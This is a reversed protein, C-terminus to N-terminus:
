VEFHQSSMEQAELRKREISAERRVADSAPGDLQKRNLFSERRVASQPSGPTTAASARKFNSREKRSPTRESDSPAGAFATFRRSWVPRASTSVLDVADEMAGTVSSLALNIRPGHEQSHEWKTIRAIIYTIVANTHHKGMQPQWQIAILNPLVGHLVSQLTPLDFETDELLRELTELEEPYNLRMMPELNALFSAAAAYDYGGRDINVVVLCKGEKIARFAAYLVGPQQLVNRTLLIIVKRVEDLQLRMMELQAKSIVSESSAESRGLSFRRKPPPSIKKDGDGDSSRAVMHGLSSLKFVNRLSIHGRAVPSTQAASPALAAVPPSSASESRPPVMAVAPPTNTFGVRAVQVDFTVQGGTAIPSPRASSPRAAVEIADDETDAAEAEQIAEQVWAVASAAASSEAASSPGAESPRATGSVPEREKGKSIRSGSILKTAAFAANVTTSMALKASKAAVVPSAIGLKECTAVGTATASLRDCAASAAAAFEETRQKVMHSVHAAEKTVEHVVAVSCDAVTKASRSAASSARGIPSPKRRAHPMELTKSEHNIM